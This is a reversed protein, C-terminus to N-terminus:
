THQRISADQIFNIFEEKATSHEMVRLAAQKALKDKDVNGALMDRVQAQFTMYWGCLGNAPTNTYWSPKNHLLLLFRADRKITEEFEDLKLEEEIPLQSIRQFANSFEDADVVHLQLAIHETHYFIQKHPAYRTNIAHFIVEEEQRNTISTLPHIKQSSDEDKSIEKSSLATHIPKKPQFFSAYSPLIM